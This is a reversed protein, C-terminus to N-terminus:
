HALLTSLVGKAYQLWVTLIVGVSAAFLIMGGLLEIPLTVMFLQIQPMLRQMFGLSIYMLLGAIIFPSSLEVGVTFSQGVLHAYAQLMDGVIIDEGAPFVQYTGIMGRLMVHDLGTIFVLALAAVGLFAGPLPSQSAMAPNLVMANSLGAQMAIISGATDVVLMILRLLSGFFVGILVERGILLFLDAVQAPPSPLSPILPPFVLLTIAMALLLRVRAPVFAEGIGPFLMVVSGIRSFVLLFHFATGGLYSAIDFSYM